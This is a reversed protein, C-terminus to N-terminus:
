VCVVIVLITYVIVERCIKESKKFQLEYSKKKRKKWKNKERRFAGIAKFKRHSTFWYTKIQDETCCSNLFISLHQYIASINFSHSINNLLTSLVFFLTLSNIWTRFNNFHVIKTLNRKRCVSTTVGWMEVDGAWIKEERM